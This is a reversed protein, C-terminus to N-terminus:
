SPVDRVHVVDTGHSKMGRAPYVLDTGHSVMGRAPYVVDAVLTLKECRVPTTTTHTTTTTTMYSTPGFTTGIPQCIATPQGSSM